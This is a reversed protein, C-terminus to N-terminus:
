SRPHHWVQDLFQTTLANFRAPEDLFIAHGAERFIEISVTKPRKSKLIHAQEELRPRVAYLIPCKRALAADRWYERPYPKNLTERAADEPMRLASSLITEFLRKELPKRTLGSVFSKLREPRPQAPQKSSSSSAPPKGEGISNDILILADPKVSRHRTLFDLIEMVGLSWGALALKKPSTHELLQLLDLSRREPTHRTTAIDSLGQSRPDFAIVRRNKSLENLQPTFVAAPMMWGPVLVITEDGSGAERYHLRVGDSATFFRSQPTAAHTTLPFAPSALTLRGLTQLCARRSLPPLM